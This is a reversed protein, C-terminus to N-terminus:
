LRCQLALGVCPPAEVSPALALGCPPGGSDRLYRPCRSRRSLLSSPRAARAEHGKGPDPRRCSRMAQERKTERSEFRLTSGHFDDHEAGADGADGRGPEQPLCAMVDSDDVALRRGAELGAEGIAPLNGHGVGFGPGVRTCRQLHQLPQRLFVRRQQEAQAGVRPLPQPAQGEQTFARRRARAVVDALDDVEPEVAAGRQLLQTSLQAQLVVLQGLADQVEVRTLGFIGRCLLGGAHHAFMSGASACHRSRM